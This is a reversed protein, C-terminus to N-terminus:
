KQEQEQEQEGKNGKRTEPLFQLIVRQVIQLMRMQIRIDKHEIYRMLTEAIKSYVEFPTVYDISEKLSQYIVNELSDRQRTEFDEIIQDTYHSLVFLLDGHLKPNSM